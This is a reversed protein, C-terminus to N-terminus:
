ILSASRSRFYRARKSSSHLSNFRRSACVQLSRERTQAHWVAAVDPQLNATWRGQSSKM